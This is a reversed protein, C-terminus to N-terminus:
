KVGCNEAVKGSFHSSAAFELEAASGKLQNATPKFGTAVALDLDNYPPGAYPVSAQHFGEHILVAPKDASNYAPYVTIVSGDTTAPVHAGQPAPQESSVIKARRLSDRLREARALSGSIGFRGNSLKKLTKEIFKECDALFIRRLAEDTDDEVTARKKELTELGAAIIDGRSQGGRTTPCSITTGM